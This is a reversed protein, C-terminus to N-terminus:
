RLTVPAERCYATWCRSLWKPIPSCKPFGWRREPSNSVHPHNIRVVGQMALAKRDAPTNVAAKSYQLADAQGATRRARLRARESFGFFSRALMGDLQGDQVAQRTRMVVQVIDSLFPALLGQEAVYRLLLEADPLAKQVHASDSLSGPSELDSM